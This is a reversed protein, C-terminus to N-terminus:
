ISKNLKVNPFTKVEESRGVKWKFRHSVKYIADNESSIINSIPIKSTTSFIDYCTM